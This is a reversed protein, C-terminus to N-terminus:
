KTEDRTYMIKNRIYFNRCLILSLFGNVMNKVVVQLVYIPSFSALWSLEDEGIQNTKVMYYIRYQDTTCVQNQLIHFQKGVYVLLQDKSDINIDVHECEAEGCLLGM